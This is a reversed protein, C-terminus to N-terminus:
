LPIAAISSVINTRVSTTLSDFSKKVTCNRVNRRLSRSSWNFSPFLLASNVRGLGLPMEIDRPQRFAPPSSLSQTSKSKPTLTLGHTQNCTTATRTTSHNNMSPLLPVFPLSSRNTSFPNTSDSRRMPLHFLGKQSPMAPTHRKLVAGHIRPQEADDNPPSSPFAVLVQPTQCSSPTIILLDTTEEGQLDSRRSRPRVTLKFPSPSVLQTVHRNGTVLEDPTALFFKDFLGSDDTLDPVPSPHHNSTFTDNLGQLKHVVKGQRQKKYSHSRPKLPAGIRKHVNHNLMPTGFSSSRSTSTM